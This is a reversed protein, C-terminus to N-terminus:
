HLTITFSNHKDSWLFLSWWSCYFLPIYSACSYLIHPLLVKNIRWILIYNLMSICVIKLEWLTNRKNPFVLLSSLNCNLAFCDEVVFNCNKDTVYIPSIKTLFQKSFNDKKTPTITACIFIGLFLRERCGVVSKLKGSKNLNM